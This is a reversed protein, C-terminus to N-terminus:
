RRRVANGFNEAAVCTRPVGALFGCGCGACVCSSGRGSRVLHLARGAVPMAASPVELVRGDVVAAGKGACDVAEVVAAPSRQIKEERASAVAFPLM